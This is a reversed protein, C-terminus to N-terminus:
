VAPRSFFPILITGTTADASVEAICGAQFVKHAANGKSGVAGIDKKSIVAFDAICMRIGHSVFILDLQEVAQEPHNVLIAPMRDRGPFYM